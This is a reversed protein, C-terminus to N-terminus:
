GGLLNGHSSEFAGSRFFVQFGCKGAFGLRVATVQIECVFSVNFTLRIDCRQEAGGRFAFGPMGVAVKLPQLLATVRGGAHREARGTLVESRGDGALGVLVGVHVGAHGFGGTVIGQWPRTCFM